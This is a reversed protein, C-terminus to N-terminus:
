YDGELLRPLFDQWQNQRIEMLFGLHGLNVGLIPIGLPGALRGARLMTGDGGLAIMLDFNGEKIQRSVDANNIFGTLTEISHENLYASVLEAEHGAESIKPHALVAIRRIPTGM